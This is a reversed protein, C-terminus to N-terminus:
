KFCVLVIMSKSLTFTQHSQGIFMVLTNVALLYTVCQLMGCVESLLLRWHEALWRKLGMAAITGFSHVLWIFMLFYWITLSKSFLPTNQQYLHSIGTLLHLNSLFYIGSLFWNKWRRRETDDMKYLWLSALLSKSNLAKKIPALDYQEHMCKQGYKPVTEPIFFIGYLIHPQLM